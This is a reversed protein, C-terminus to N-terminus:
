LLRDEIDFQNKNSSKAPDQSSLEAACTAELLNRIPPLNACHNPYKNVVQVILSTENPTGTEAVKAKAEVIASEYRIQQLILLIQSVSHKGYSYSTSPVLIVQVPLNAPAIGPTPSYQTSSDFQPQIYPLVQMPQIQETSQIYCTSPSSAAAPLPAQVYSSSITSHLPPTTQPIALVKATDHHDSTVQKVSDQLTEIAITQKEQLTHVADIIEKLKDQYPLDPKSSKSLFYGM